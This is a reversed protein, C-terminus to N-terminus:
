VVPVRFVSISVFVVILVNSLNRRPLQEVSSRSYSSRGGGGLELGRGELPVCM